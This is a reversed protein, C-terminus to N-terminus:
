DAAVFTATEVYVQDSTQYPAFANCGSVGGCETSGVGTHGGWGIGEALAAFVAWVCCERRRSCREAM